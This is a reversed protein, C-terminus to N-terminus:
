DTFDTTRSREVVKTWVTKKIFDYFLRVGV